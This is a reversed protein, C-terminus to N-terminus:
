FCISIVKRLFRFIPKLLHNHCIKSIERNKQDVPRVLVSLQKTRMEMMLRDIMWEFRMELSINAHNTQRVLKVRAHNGMKKNVKLKPPIEAIPYLVSSNLVEKIMSTLEALKIEGYHYEYTNDRPAFKESLM